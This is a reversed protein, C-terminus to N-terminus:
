IDLEKKETDVYFDGGISDIDLPTEDNYQFLQGSSGDAPYWNVEFLEREATYNFKLIVKEDDPLYNYASPLITIDKWNIEVDSWHIHYNKGLVVPVAWGNIYSLISYELSDEDALDIGEDLRLLKIVKHNIQGGLGTFAIKRLTITDDCVLGNYL